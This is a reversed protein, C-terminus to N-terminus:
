EKAGFCHTTQDAAVVIYGDVASLQMYEVSGAAPKSWDLRRRGTKDLVVLRFGKLLPMGMSIDTVAFGFAAGDQLAVAAKLKLREEKEATEIVESFVQKGDAMSLGVVRATEYDRSLALALVDGMLARDHIDERDFTARWVTKGAAVDVLAAGPYGVVLVQGKFPLCMSPRVLNSAVQAKVSFDELAFLRVMGREDTICLQDNLMFPRARSNRASANPLKARRIERGSEIDLLLLQDESGALLAVVGLPTQRLWLVDQADLTTEWTQAGSVADLAAIRMQRSASRTGVSSYLIMGDRVDVDDPSAALRATWRTEGRDTVFVFGRTFVLLVGDKTRICQNLGLLGNQGGTFALSGDKPNVGMLPLEGSMRAMYLLPSPGPAPQAPITIFPTGAKWSESWLETLPSAMRPPLAVDEPSPAVKLLPELWEKFSARRGELSLSGEPFERLARMATLRARLAEGGRYQCLALLALLEGRRPRQALEDFLGNIFAAAPLYAGAAFDALALQLAADDSALALPYQRLARQLSARDGQKLLAAAEAEREAYHGRGRAELLAALANVALQRLPLREFTLNDPAALLSEYLSIVDLERGASASLLRALMISAYYRVPIEPDSGVGFDPDSQIMSEYLARLATFDNRKVLCLEQRVFCETFQGPQRAHRRASEILALAELFRGQRIQLDAAELSVGVLLRGAMTVVRSNVPPAEALELARLLWRQAEAKDGGRLVLMGYRLAADADKPFSAVRLRAENLLLNADFRAAVQVNGATYDNGAITFMLGQQVFVSLGPIRQAPNSVTRGVRWTDLDIEAIGTAGPWYLKNGALSPRGQLINRSNRDIVALSRLLKGSALDIGYLVSEGGVLVIGGRVGILARAGRLPSRAEEYDNDQRQARELQWALEGTRANFAVLQQSDTPACIVYAEGGAEAYLTPSNYWTAPRYYTFIYSTMPRCMYEYRAIWALNRRELNVAVVGGLNTCLFLEGGAIAPLSTFPWRAPRGFMTVEQQGYCLRLTWLVSGDSPKLAYLFVDAIGPVTTGVAYLVGEHVVAPGFSTQDLESGEYLGGLRWLLRGTESDVACLARRAQPYHAYLGFRNDAFRRHIPERLPNELPAFAMGRWLSVPLTLSPDPEITRWSNGRENPFPKCRWAPLGQRGGTFIDYAVLSDGNNVFLLSGDTVPLQAPAIPQPYQMYRNNFPDAELRPLTQSWAVNEYPTPAESIGTNAYNGGPWHVSISELTDNTGDRTRTLDAALAEGLKMSSPGVDVATDKLPRAFQILQALNAREGLGQYCRALWVSLRSEAQPTLLERVELARELARAAPSLRGEEWNLQALLVAARIGAQTLGFRRNVDLMRELDGAAVANNLNNEARRGYLEEYIALGDKGLSRIRSEIANYAGLWRSVDRPEGGDLMAVVGVANVPRDLEEQCIQLFSETRARREKPPLEQALDNQLRNLKRVAEDLYPPTIVKFASPDSPPLEYGGFGRQAEGARSLSLAALAALSFLLFRKM